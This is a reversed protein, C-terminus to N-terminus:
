HILSVTRIVWKDPHVQDFSSLFCAKLFIGDLVHLIPVVSAYAGCIEEKPQVDSGDDHDSAGFSANAM